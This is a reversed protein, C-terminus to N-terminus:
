NAKGKEETFREEVGVLPLRLWSHACGLFLCSCFVAHPSMPQNARFQSGGDDMVMENDDCTFIISSGCTSWTARVAPIRGVRVHVCLM